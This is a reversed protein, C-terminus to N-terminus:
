ADDFSGDTLEVHGLARLTLRLRRVSAGEDGHELSPTPGQAVLAAWTAANTRGTTKMAHKRQLLELKGAGQERDHRDEGPSYTDFSTTCGAAVAPGATGALVGISGALVAVGTAVRASLLSM